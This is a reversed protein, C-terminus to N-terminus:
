PAALEKFAAEIEEKTSYTNNFSAYAIRSGAGYVTSPNGGPNYWLAGVVLPDYKPHSANPASGDATGETAEPSAAPGTTDMERVYLVPEMGGKWSVAIFYWMGQEWQRTLKASAMGVSRGGVRLQLEGKELILQVEGEGAHGTGMFGYRGGPNFNALPSMVLYFTGGKLAGDDSTGDGLGSFGFYAEYSSNKADSPNPQTFLGYKNIETIGTAPIGGGAKAEMFGSGLFPQWKDSIGTAESLVAANASLMSEDSAGDRNLDLKVVSDGAADTNSDFKWEAVTEARAMSAVALSITLVAPLCFSLPRPLHIPSSLHKVHVNQNM